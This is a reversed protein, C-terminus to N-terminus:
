HVNMLTLLFQALLIKLIMAAPMMSVYAIQTAQSPALGEAFALIAPQTQGGALTGTATVWDWRFILMAGVMLVSTSVLTIVAGALMLQLGQTQIAQM